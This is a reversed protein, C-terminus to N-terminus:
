GKSKCKGLLLIGETIQMVELSPSSEEHNFNFVQRNRQLILGAPQSSHRLSERIGFYFM